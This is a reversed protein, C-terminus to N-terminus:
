YTGAYHKRSSILEMFNNYCYANNIVTTPTSYDWGQKIKFKLEDNPTLTFKM